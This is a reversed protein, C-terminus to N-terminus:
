EFGRRLCRALDALKVELLAVLVAVVRADEVELVSLVALEVVVEDLEDLLLPEYSGESESLPLAVVDLVLLLEVEDFDVQPLLRVEECSLCACGRLVCFCRWRCALARERTAAFGIM